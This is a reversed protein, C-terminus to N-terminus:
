ILMLQSADRIGLEEASLNIDLIIGTNRDCLVAEDSIFLGDSIKTIANILLESIEHFKVGIPIFVDFGKGISPVYVEVLINNKM